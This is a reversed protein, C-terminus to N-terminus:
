GTIQAYRHIENMSEHDATAGRTQVRGKLYTKIPELINELKM